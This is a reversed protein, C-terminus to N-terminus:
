PMDIKRNKKLAPNWYSILKELSSGAWPKSLAKIQRYLNEATKQAKEAGGFALLTPRGQILDDPDQLDDLIQFLDGLLVGLKKLQLAGKPQGIILGCEVCAQILAGTKRRHVDRLLEETAHLPEWRLDLEQGGLMGWAGIRYSITQILELRQQASLSPAASLLEFAYTLLFNGTLLAEAESFAKHLSPKGRRVDDDDMCPLDDHILSYTHIMEIACAPILAPELPAGSLTSVSMLLQPRVRKGGGLVAYRGAERLTGTPFRSSDLVKDLMVEFSDIM